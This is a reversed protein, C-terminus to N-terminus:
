FNLLKKKQFKKFMEIWFDFGIFNSKLEYNTIAENIGLSTTLDINSFVKKWSTKIRGKPSTYNFGKVKERDSKKNESFLLLITDLETTELSYKKADDHIKQWVREQTDKLRLTQIVKKLINQKESKSSEFKFCYAAFNEIWSDEFFASLSWAVPISISKTAIMETSLAFLQDKFWGIDKDRWRSVFAITSTPSLRVGIRIADMRSWYKEEVNNGVLEACRLFRYALETSVNRSLASKNALSCVAMWREVIEDGFKSVAQIAYDFYVAADEQSLPLVARALEIFWNARTEPSENVANEVIERTSLELKTRLEKLPRISLM